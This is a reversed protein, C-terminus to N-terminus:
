IKDKQSIANEKEEIKTALFKKLEIMNEGYHAERHCNPCIAAVNLPHDPGDDSLSFIHHVELFPFGKSNLFPANKDCNECIGEARLLAYNKIQASRKYYEKDIIKNIKLSYKKTNNIVKRRLTYLESPELALNQFIDNEPLRKIPKITSPKLVYKVLKDGKRKGEKQIELRWSDVEFIGEYRYLKKHNGRKRVEEANPEKSSFLLIIKEQKTLLSNAFSHPNQDGKEGQGTYIWRGDEQISDSYGVRKTHRGGTTVIITDSGNKNWIIGSQPQKSGIFNLLDIRKYLKNNEFM